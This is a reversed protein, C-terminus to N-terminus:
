VAREAQITTYLEAAPQITREWSYQKTVTKRAQKGLEAAVSRKRLLTLLGESFRTATDALMIDHGDQCAIGRAGVTTSVIPKAAAMYTLIKLGTGSGLRMPSICVAAQALYTREDPVFGALVLSPDRAAKQRLWDPPQSGIIIVRLDPLQRAIRPHIGDIYWRLADENPPYTTGGMFLLTHAATPPLPQFHDTDVGNPVLTVRSAGLSEFFLQDAASCVLVADALLAARDEIRRYNPLIWWGLARKAPPFTKISAELLMQEANHADLVILAGLRRAPQLVREVAYFANIQELQIVDPVERTLEYSLLAALRSARFQEMFPITRKISAWLIRLPTRPPLPASRVTVQDLARLAALAAEDQSDQICFVTVQYGLRVFQRIMNLNRIAAGGVQGPVECAVIWLKKM